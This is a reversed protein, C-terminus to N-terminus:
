VEFVRGCEYQMETNEPDKLWFCHQNKGPYNLTRNEVTRDDFGDKGPNGCLM